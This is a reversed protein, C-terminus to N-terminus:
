FLAALPQGTSVPHTYGDAGIFGALDFSWIFHTYLLMGGALVRILSLTAPDAPTFWFGNWAEWLEAFYRRVDALLSRM